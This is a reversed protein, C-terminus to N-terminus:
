SNEFESKMDNVFQKINLRIKGIGREIKKNSKIGKEFINLFGLFSNHSQIVRQVQEQSFLHEDLPSEIVAGKVGKKTKSSVYMAQEKKNSLWKPNKNFKEQLSFISKLYNEWLEGDIKAIKLIENIYKKRSILQKQHKTSLQNIEKKSNSEEIWNIMVMGFILEFTLLQRKEHSGKAKFMLQFESDERSRFGMLCSYGLISKGMEEFGLVTLAYAHAPSGADLLTQADKLYQKANKLAAEFLAFDPDNVVM